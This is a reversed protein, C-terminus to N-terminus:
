DITKKAMRYFNFSPRNFLRYSYNNTGIGNSIYLKTNNILYFDKNYKKAGDELFLPGILPLNVLGNLSHGALILNFNDVVSDIMDPKHTILIKYINEENVELNVNADNGMGYIMIYNLSGNYIKEYSNDLNIFGGNKIIVDFEDFNDNDGTVVYKNIKANIGSLFDVLIKKDDETLNTEKNILDGTLVVIDPKTLNIKDKLENLEKEFTTKGYQIDSIHVIKFGKFDDPINEVLKIENVKINKTGIYRAYIIISISIITIILFTVVIIKIIKKDM